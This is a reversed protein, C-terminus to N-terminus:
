KYAVAMISVGNTATTTGTETFTFTLTKAATNWVVDSTLYGQVGDTRAGYCVIGEGAAGTGASPTGCVSADPNYDNREYLTSYTLSTTITNTGTITILNNGVSLGPHYGGSKAIGNYNLAIKTPVFDFTLVITDNTAVGSKGGLVVDICKSEVIGEFAGDKLLGGDVMVGATPTQENLTDVTLIKSVMDGQIKTQGTITTM